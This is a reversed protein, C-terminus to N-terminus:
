DGFLELSELYEAFKNKRFFFVYEHHLTKVRVNDFMWSNDSTVTKQEKIVSLISHWQKVSIKKKLFKNKFLLHKEDTLYNTWLFSPSKPKVNQDGWEVKFVFVNDNTKKIRYESCSWIVGRNSNTYSVLTDNGKVTLTDLGLFADFKLQQINHLLSQKELTDLYNKAFSDELVKSITDFLFDYAEEQKPKDFPKQQKRNDKIPCGFVNVLVLIFVFIRVM